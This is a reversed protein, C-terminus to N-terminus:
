KIANKYDKKNSYRTVLISFIIFVGFGIAFGIIAKIIELM